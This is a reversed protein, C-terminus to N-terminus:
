LFLRQKSEKLLKTTNEVQLKITNLAEEQLNAKFSMEVMKSKTEEM